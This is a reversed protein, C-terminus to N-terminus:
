QTAPLQWNADFFGGHLIPRDELLTRGWQETIRDDYILFDPVLDPLFRSAGTGRISTGAHLVVYEDPNLPSPHIISIGVGQGEFRKKGLVLAEEEFQVPLTEVLRRTILNSQPNGILILSHSKLAADTVETDAKIPFNLSNRLHTQAHYAAVTRNHETQGPDQTGYIVLSPRIRVDDLPGSLGPRKQNEMSRPQSLVEWSERTRHLHVTPTNEPVQLRAKDVLITAANDTIDKLEVTLARANQTNLTLTNKPASWSADISALKDLDSFADVQLWWSRNYRYEGTSLRVRHPSQPRKKRTLWRVMRGKRYAHDWVNHGMDPQKDYTHRYRLKKLTDVIVESRQPQDKGGHVIHMPLHLGNFAYNGIYRKQLLIKEWPHKPVTKVQNYTLLNPYGCLPAAASFIDPYHLPATFAVTGGLSYGTISIRQPDIKYAKQVEELVKLIDHEGLLRQGNNKYGWPAVLIAGTELLKPLDRWARTRNESDRPAQGVVTRLARQTSNGLGHFVVVLPRPKGDPKYNRPIHMLYPQDNQDLDSVYSRRVVGTLTKYPDQDAQLANKLSELAEIERKLWKTDTDNAEFWTVFERVTGQFSEVSGQPINPSPTLTNAFSRLSAMRHHLSGHFHIKHTTPPADGLYLALTYDGPEKLALQQTWSTTDSRINETRLTTKEGTPSTLVLTSPLTEFTRPHHPGASPTIETQFGEPTLKQTVHLAQTDTIACSGQNYSPRLLINAPVTGQLTRLRAKVLSEWRQEQELHVSLTNKGPNLHIQVAWEDPLPKRWGKRQREMVKEGNLFWRARGKGGTTLWLTQKRDTYLDTSAIAHVPKRRRRRSSPHAFLEPSNLCAMDWTYADPKSLPTTTSTFDRARLTNNLSWAQIWGQPPLPRLGPDNPSLDVIDICAGGACTQNENCPTKKTLSQGNEACHQPTKADLCTKFGPTCVEPKSPAIMPRDHSPVPAVPQPSPPPDPPADHTCSALFLLTIPLCTRFIDEKM